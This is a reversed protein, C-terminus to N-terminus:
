YYDEIIQLRKPADWIHMRHEVWNGDLYKKPIFFENGRGRVMDRYSACVCLVKKGVVGKVFIARGTYRFRDGDGLFVDDIPAIRIALKGVLEELRM